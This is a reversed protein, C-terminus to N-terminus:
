SDSKFLSPKYRCLFGNSIGFGIILVVFLADSHFIVPILHRDSPALNCLLFLPVFVIRLLALLFAGMPSIPHDPLLYLLVRGLFDGMAFALFCCTPVFFDKEWTGSDNVEDGGESVILNTLAPFCSITVTYVLLIILMQTKIKWVIEMLSRRKGTILSTPLLPESEPNTKALFLNAYQRVYKSNVLYVMSLFALVNFLLALNFLGITNLENPFNNLLVIVAAVFVGGFSQSRLVLSMCGTHLGGALGTLGSSFTASSLTTLTSSVTTLIVLMTSSFVDERKGQM